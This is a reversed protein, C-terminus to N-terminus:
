FTNPLRKPVNIERPTITLFLIDHTKSANSQGGMLWNLASGTGSNDSSKKDEEFGSLVLSDGNNLMAQQVFSRNSTSPLQIKNEGSTFQDITILDISSLSFQILVRGDGLIRPTVQLSFGEHVSGPSLSSQSVDSGSNSTVSVEALYSIDRGIRRTAPRNNLTTLPIRAVRSVTGLTSVAKIFAETGQFKSTPSLVQVAFGNGTTEGLGSPPGNFGLAPWGNREALAFTVDAGYDETDTLSLTFLELTIAVQKTNRANEMDVYNAVTRMIDPTTIVTVSGSSPSTKVAGVGGLITTLTGELETWYDLTVSSTATQTLGGGGGGGGSSGGSSSGGSSGGEGTDGQSGDTLSTTGPMAEITFTRTEYRSMIIAAGDYKWSVGFHGAVTDLLGSLPGEYALRMPEVASAVRPAASGGGAAPTAGADSGGSSLQDAGDTLRVSVGTQSMITTAIENLTMEKGSVMTVATPGDLSSPLPIGRRMRVSRSGTWVQSTVQLPDYSVASAPQQAQLAGAEARPKDAKVQDRVESALCGSLLTMVLVSIGLRLSKSMLM